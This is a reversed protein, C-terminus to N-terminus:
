SSGKIGSEHTWSGVLCRWRSTKGAGHCGKGDKYIVVEDKWKSLGFLRPIMRSEEREHGVDLRDAFRDTRGEFYIRLRRM